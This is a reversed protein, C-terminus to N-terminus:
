ISDGPFINELIKGYINARRECMYYEYPSGWSNCSLLPRRILNNLDLDACAYGKEEGRAIICSALGLETAELVM